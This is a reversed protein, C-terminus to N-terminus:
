SPNEQQGLLALMKDLDGRYYGVTLGQLLVAYRGQVEANRAQIYSANASSLDIWTSAGVRYRARTAEWAQRAGLLPDAQLLSDFLRHVVSRATELGRM